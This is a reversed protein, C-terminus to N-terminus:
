SQVIEANETNTSILDVLVYRDSVLRVYDTVMIITQIPLQDVIIKLFYLFVSFLIKPINYGTM